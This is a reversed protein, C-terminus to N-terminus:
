YMYDDEDQDYLDYLVPFEEPNNWSTEDYGLVGAAKQQDESLKAFAVYFLETRYGWTNEDWGLFSAAALEDEPLDEWLDEIIEESEEPAPGRETRLGSQYVVLVFSGLIALYLLMRCFWIRDSDLGKNSIGPTVQVPPAAAKAAAEAKKRAKTHAWGTGSKDAAAATTAAAAAARKRAVTQAWGGGSDGEERARGGVPAHSASLSSGVRGGQARWQQDSDRAQEAAEAGAALLRAREALEAEDDSSLAEEGDSM